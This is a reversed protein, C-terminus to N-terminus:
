PTAPRLMAWVQIGQGPTAGHEMVQFGRRQYFRVAGETNTELYCAAGEASAQALVPQLLSSGIGQGQHAPEIGLVWLYWHSPPAYREHLRNTYVMVNYFRQLAALGIVFPTLVLGSRLLGLPNLDTSGPPLWCAVGELEPTTYVQGYLLSYRVVREFLWVLTEIRKIENPQLIVFSPDCQFVEALLAAAPKLQSFLLRVPTNEPM